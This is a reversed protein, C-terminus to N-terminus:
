WRKDKTESRYLSVLNKELVSLRKKFILHEKFPHIDLQPTFLLISCQYAIRETIVANYSFYICDM